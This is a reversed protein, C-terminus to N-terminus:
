PMSAAVVVPKPNGSHYIPAHGGTQPLVVTTAKATSSVTMDANYTVVDPMFALLDAELAEVLVTSGDFTQAHVITMPLKYKAIIGEVLTLDKARTIVHWLEHTATAGAKFPEALISDIADKVAIQQKTATVNGQKDTPLATSFGLPTKILLNINM